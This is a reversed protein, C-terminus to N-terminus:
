AKAAVRAQLALVAAGFAAPPPVEAATWYWPLDAAIDIGLLALAFVLHTVGLFTITPAHRRVDFSVLLCLGGFFAYFASLSRALYEVIAGAPLEGLGLWEHCAAMWARPMVVAALALCSTAGAVRLLIRLWREASM